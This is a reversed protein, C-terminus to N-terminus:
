NKIYEKRTLDNTKDDLCCHKKPFFKPNTTLFWAKFNTLLCPKKEVECLLGKRELDRKYRTICKQHIGTADAVMSATATHNQLYEFITKKQTDTKTSKGQEPCNSILSQTDGGSM